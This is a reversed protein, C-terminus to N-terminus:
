TLRPYARRSCAVSAFIESPSMSPKDIAVFALRARLPCAIFFEAATMALGGPLKAVVIPAIAGSSDEDYRLVGTTPDYLM